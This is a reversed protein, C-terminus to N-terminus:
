QNPFNKKFEEHQEKPLVIEGIKLNKLLPNEQSQIYSELYERTFRVSRGVRVPQLTGAKILRDVTPSSIQLYVAAQEKTLLPDSSNYYM